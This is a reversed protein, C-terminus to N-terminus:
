TARRRPLSSGSGRLGSSIRVTRPVPQNRWRVPSGTPVAGGLDPSVAQPWGGHLGTGAPHLAAVAGEKGQQAANSGGPPLGAQSFASAKAGDALAGIGRREIWRVAVGLQLLGMGIQGIALVAVEGHCHGAPHIVPRTIPLSAKKVRTSSLPGDLQENLLGGEGGRRGSGARFSRWSVERPPHRHGSRPAHCDAGCRCPRVTPSTFRQSISELASCGSGVFPM